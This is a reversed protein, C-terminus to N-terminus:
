LNILIVNDCSCPEDDDTNIISSSTDKQSNFYQYVPDLTVKLRPILEGQILEKTDYKAAMLISIIGALICGLFFGRSFYKLLASM